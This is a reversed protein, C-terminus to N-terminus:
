SKTKVRQDFEELGKALGVFALIGIIYGSWGLSGGEARALEYVRIADSALLLMFGVLLGNKVISRFLGNKNKLNNAMRM